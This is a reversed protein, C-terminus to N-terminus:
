AGLNGRIRSAIGEGDGKSNNVQTGLRATEIREGYNGLNDNGEFVM